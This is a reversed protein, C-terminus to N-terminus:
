RAAPALLSLAIVVLLAVTVAAVYLDDPPPNLRPRCPM